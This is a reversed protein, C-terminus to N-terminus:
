RCGEEPIDCHSGAWSLLQAPALPSIGAHFSTKELAYKKVTNERDGGARYLEMLKINGMATYEALLITKGAM